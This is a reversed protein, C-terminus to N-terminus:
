AWGFGGATSAHSCTRRGGASPRVAGPVLMMSLCAWLEQYGGGVRAVLAGNQQKLHLQRGNFDYVSARLTKIITIPVQCPPLPLPLPLTLLRGHERSRYEM